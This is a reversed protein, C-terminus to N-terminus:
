IDFAEILFPSVEVQVLIIDFPAFTQNIVSRVAEITQDVRRYTPIVVSVLIEQSM